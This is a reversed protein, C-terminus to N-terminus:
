RALSGNWPSPGLREGHRLKRVSGDVMAVLSVGGWVEWNVSEFNDTANRENKTTSALMGISEPTEFDPLRKAGLVENFAFAYRDGQGRKLSVVFIERNTAPTVVSDMWRSAIPLREDNSEAYALILAACQKLGSMANTRHAVTNSNDLAWVFGALLTVTCVGVILLILESLKM